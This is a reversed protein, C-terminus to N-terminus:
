RDTKKCRAGLGVAPLFSQETAGCVQKHRQKRSGAAATKPEAAERTSFAVPSHREQLQPTSPQPFPPYSGAPQLSVMGPGEGAAQLMPLHAM